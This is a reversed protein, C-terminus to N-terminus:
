QTSSSHIFSRFHKKSILSDNFLILLPDIEYVIRYTAFDISLFHFFQNDSLFAYM